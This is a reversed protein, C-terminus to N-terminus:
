TFAQHIVVLSNARCTLALGPYLARTACSGQTFCNEPMSLSSTGGMVVTGDVFCFASPGESDGEQKEEGSCM